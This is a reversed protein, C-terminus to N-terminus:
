RESRFQEVLAASHGDALRRTVPEAVKVPGAGLAHAVREVTGRHHAVLEEYSVTASSM